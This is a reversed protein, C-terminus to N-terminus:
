RIGPKADTLRIMRGAMCIGMSNDEVFLIRVPLANIRLSDPFNVAQLINGSPDAFVYSCGDLGSMDKVTVQLYGDDAGTRGSSTASKRACGTVMFFALSFFIIKM